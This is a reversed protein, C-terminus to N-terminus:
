DHHLFRTLGVIVSADSSSEPGNSTRVKVGWLIIADDKLSSLYGPTGDDQKEHTVRFLRKGLFSRVRRPRGRCRWIFPPLALIVILDERDQDM